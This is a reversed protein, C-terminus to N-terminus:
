APDLRRLYRVGHKIEYRHRDRVGDPRDFEMELTQKIGHLEPRYPYCLLILGSADSNEPEIVQIEEGEVKMHVDLAQPGANEVVMFVAKGAPHERDVEDRYYCMLYPNLPSLWISPGAAVAGPIQIGNFRRNSTMLYPSVEFSRRRIAALEAEAKEKAAREKRKDLIEYWWKVWGFLAAVATIFFGILYSLWWDKM